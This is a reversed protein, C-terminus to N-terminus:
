ILCMSRSSCYGSPCLSFVGGDQNSEGVREKARQVGEVCAENHLAVGRQAGLRPQRAM